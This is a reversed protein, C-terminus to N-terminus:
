SIRLTDVLLHFLSSSEYRRPYYMYYGLYYIDWDELVQILKGELLESEIM